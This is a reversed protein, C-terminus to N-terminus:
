LQSFMESKSGAGINKEKVLGCFHHLHFRLFHLFFFGLLKQEFDKAWWMKTLVKSCIQAAFQKASTVLKVKKQFTKFVFSFFISGITESFNNLFKKINQVLVKAFFHPQCIWSNTKKSYMKTSCCSWSLVPFFFETSGKKCM